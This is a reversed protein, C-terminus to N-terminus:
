FLLLLLLLLLLFLLLFFLFLSPLVLMWLLFLLILLLLLLVVVVVAVVSVVAIIVVVVFLLLLFLGNTSLQIELLTGRVRVARINAPVCFIREVPPSDQIQISLITSHVKPLLGRYYTCAFQPILKFLFFTEGGDEYNLFVNRAWVM